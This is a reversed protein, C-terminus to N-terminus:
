RGGSAHDEPLYPSAHGPEVYLGREAGFAVARPCPRDAGIYMYLDFGVHLAFEDSPAELKCITEERLMARVVRGIAAPSLVTGDGLDAPGRELERVQLLGVGSERVFELATDVYATEVREYEDRTLTGAGYVRGVDAISTWEDAPYAGRDDRLAPDYRTVRWWFPLSRLSTTSSSTM